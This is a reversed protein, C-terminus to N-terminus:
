KERESEVSTDCLHQQDNTNKRGCTDRQTHTHTHTTNETQLREHPSRALFLLCLFLLVKLFDTGRGRRARQDNPAFKDQEGAGRDGEEGERNRLGKM